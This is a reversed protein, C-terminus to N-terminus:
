KRRTLFEKIVDVIVVLYFGAFILLICGMLLLM